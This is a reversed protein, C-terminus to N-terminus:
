KGLIKGAKNNGRPVWVFRVRGRFKSAMDQWIRMAHERIDDKDIANEHNLQKVVPDADCRIELEDDKSIDKMNQMAHIIAAYECRFNDKCVDLGHFVEGTTENFWAILGGKDQRFGGDVYVIHTRGLTQSDQYKGTPDAPTPPTSLPYYDYEDLLETSKNLSISARYPKFGLDVEFDDNMVEYKKRYRGSASEAIVALSLDKKAVRTTDIELQAKMRTGIVECKKLSADLIPLYFGLRNSGITSLDYNTMWYHNIAEVVDRFPPDQDTLVISFPSKPMVVGQISYDTYFFPKGIGHDVGRSRSYFHLDGGPFNGFFSLDYNTIRFLIEEPHPTTSMIEPNGADVKKLYDLFEYFDNIGLIYDELVFNPSRLHVKKTGFETSDGFIVRCSFVKWPGEKILALKFTASKYRLSKTKERLRSEQSATPM